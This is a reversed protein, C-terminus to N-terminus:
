QANITITDNLVKIQHDMKDMQILALRNCIQCILIGVIKIGITICQLLNCIIIRGDAAAEVPERTICIMIVQDIFSIRVITRNEFLVANM